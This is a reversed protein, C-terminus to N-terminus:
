ASPCSRLGSSLLIACAAAIGIHGIASVQLPMIVFSRDPATSSIGPIVNMVTPTSIIM